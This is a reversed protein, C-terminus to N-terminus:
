RSQPPLPHTPPPARMCLASLPRPPLPRTPYSSYPPSAPPPSPPPCIAVVGLALRELLVAVIRPTAIEPEVIRPTAIERCAAKSSCVPPPPSSPVPTRHLSAFTSGLVLQGPLCEPFHQKPYRHITSRFFLLLCRFFYYDIFIQFTATFIQITTTSLLDSSPEVYYRLITSYVVDAM